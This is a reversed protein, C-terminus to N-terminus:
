EFPKYYGYKAISLMERDGDSDGYAYLTLDSIEGLLASLRNVKEIGRCNEGILNGTTMGDVLELETSLLHDFGLSQSVYSLYISPSASVMILKHKKAKHWRIKELAKPRIDNLLHDAFVKSYDDLKQFHCGTLFRKIVLKKLDDRSVLGILHASFKPFMEVIRFICVKWGFMGILFKIFSDGELMTGDFDFAAVTIHEGM